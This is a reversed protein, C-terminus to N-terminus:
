RHFTIDGQTGTLTLYIVHREADSKDHKFLNNLYIINDSTKLPNIIVASVFCATKTINPWM